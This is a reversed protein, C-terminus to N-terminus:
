AHFAAQLRVAPAYGFRLHPFSRHQQCSRVHPGNMVNILIIIM